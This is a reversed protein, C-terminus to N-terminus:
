GWPVAVARRRTPSPLDRPDGGVTNKLLGCLVATKWLCSAKLLHEQSQRPDCYCQGSLSPLFLSFDLPCFLLQWMPLPHWTWTSLDKIFRKEMEGGMGVVGRGQPECAEKLGEYM